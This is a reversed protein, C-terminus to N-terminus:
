LRAAIKGMEGTDYACLDAIERAFQGSGLAELMALVPRSNMERRGVVLDYREERWVAFDLGYADAAVRITVGADALGNAIASAVELHGAALQSYGKLRTPSIGAVALAEDLVLRAGSGQERNIVTVGPRALDAVERLPSRIGHRTALGLEWRAFSVITVRHGRLAERAAALNYEGTRPDRLHVGAVHAGREALLRLAARSSRGVAVVELTPSHRAMHDALLAVAPDCGAVILTSDIEQSTRYAAIEARGGPRVRKLVGAAPALSLAAPSRPLAVLRGGVRALAVRSSRASAAVGHWRAVIEVPQDEGFLSEVSQGLARAIRLATAVGPQYTGGEIASLAQRSIGARRALESQGLGRAIRLRRLNNVISTM